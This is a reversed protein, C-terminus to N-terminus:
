LAVSWSWHRAYSGRLWCNTLATSDISRLKSEISRDISRNHNSSPTLDIAFFARWRRSRVRLLRGNSRSGMANSGDRNISGSGSPRTVTWAREVSMLCCSLLSDTLVCSICYEEGAAARKAPPPPQRLTHASSSGEPGEPQECLSIPM